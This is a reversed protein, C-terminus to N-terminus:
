REPSVSSVNLADVVTFAWQHIEESDRWDGSLKKAMAHAMLGEADAELRGGFTVHGRAGVLNMLKRVQAVPAIQSGVASAGLPGSSFFWVPVRRLAASQSKVFRRAARRWHTAYLASGVIVADYGSLSNLSDVSRVDAAVNRENLARGISEAIGQTGGRKSSYAVLIKM